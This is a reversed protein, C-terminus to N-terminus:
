EGVEVLAKVSFFRHADSSEKSRGRKQAACAADADRSAAMEWLEEWHGNEFMNCLKGLKYADGDTDVDDPCSPLCLRPLALLLWWAARDNEICRPLISEMAAVFARKHRHGLQRRIRAVGAESLVEFPQAAAWAWSAANPGSGRLDPYRQQAPPPAPVAAAAPARPAAPKAAKASKPDGIQHTYRMHRRLGVETFGTLRANAAQAAAGRRQM